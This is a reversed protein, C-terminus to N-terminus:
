AMGDWAPPAQAQKEIALNSQHKKNLMAKSAHFWSSRKEAPQDQWWGDLVSLEAELDLITHFLRKWESFDRPKLRITKGFFAYDPPKGGVVKKEKDTHAQTDTPEVSASRDGFRRQVSAQAAAKSKLSKTEVRALETAIRSHLWVGDAITFFESITDRMRAWERPGVRAIKALRADDDPLPGGRQWYNMILLMYAGHQQTSLHATDALYDAVFLPIYPLAAM